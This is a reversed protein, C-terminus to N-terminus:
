AQSDIAYVNNVKPVDILVIYYNGCKKVNEVPYQFEIKNNGVFLTNQNVRFESM